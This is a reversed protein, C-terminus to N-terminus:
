YTVQVRVPHHDSTYPPVPAPGPGIHPIPVNYPVAPAPAPPNLGREIWADVNPPAGGGLNSHYVIAYDLDRGATTQTTLGTAVIGFQNAPVTVHTAPGAVIGGLAGIVQVMDLPQLNLDGMLVSVTRGGMANARAVILQLADYLDYATTAHGGSLAHYWYNHLPASQQMVLERRALYGRVNAAVPRNFPPNPGASPIAAPYGGWAPMGAPWAAAQSKDFRTPMVAGIPHGLYGYQHLQNAPAARNRVAQWDAPSAPCAWAPGVGPLGPIPLPNGFAPRAGYVEGVASWRNAAAPVPGPAGGPWGGPPAALAGNWNDLWRLAAISKNFGATQANWWRLLHTPM